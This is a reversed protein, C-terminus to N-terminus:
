TPLQGRTSEGRTAIAYLRVAVDLSREAKASDDGLTVTCLNAIWDSM